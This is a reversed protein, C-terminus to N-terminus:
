NTKVQVNEKDTADVQFFEAPKYGFIAAFINSPFSQLLTNNDRVVANYYRRSNQLADEVEVLQQQLQLFNAAAKLEPYNEVLMMISNIANKMSNEISERQKLNSSQTAETRLQAVEEFLKKEHSAYGKVSEVLMPILSSRRKLQVDIDSWANRIRNKYAVFRNFLIITIILLVLIIGSIIYTIM